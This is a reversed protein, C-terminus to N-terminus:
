FSLVPHVRACRLTRNTHIFLPAGKQQQLLLSKHQEKHPNRAVKDSLIHPYKATARHIRGDGSYTLVPYAGDYVLRVTLPLLSHVINNTQRLLPSARASTDTENM